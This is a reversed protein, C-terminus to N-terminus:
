LKKDVCAKHLPPPSIFYRTSKMCWLFICSISSTKMYQFLSHFKLWERSIQMITKKSANGLTPASIYFKKSIRIVIIVSEHDLNYIVEWHVMCHEAQWKIHLYLPPHMFTIYIGKGHGILPIKIRHITEVHVKSYKTAPRSVCM